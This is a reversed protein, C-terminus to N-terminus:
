YDLQLTNPIDRKNHLVRLIETQTAHEIYFILYPFKNCQWARIAPLDLALAYRTSGSAPFQQIHKFAHEVDEVFGAIHEPSNVIYYDIALDIDKDALVRRVLKKM